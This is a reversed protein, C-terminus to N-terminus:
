VLVDPDLHLLGAIAVRHRDATKRGKATLKYCRRSRGGRRNPTPKVDYSTVLGERELNHLAPYVSGQPLKVKGGSRKKVRQILAIGHGDGETLAQLVAAKASVLAM